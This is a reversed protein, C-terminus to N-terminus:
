WVRRRSRQPLILDGLYHSYTWRLITLLQILSVDFYDVRLVLLLEYGVTLRVVREALSNFVM